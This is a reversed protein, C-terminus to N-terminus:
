DHYEETLNKKEMVMGLAVMKSEEDLNVFPIGCFTALLASVYYEQYEEASLFDKLSKVM